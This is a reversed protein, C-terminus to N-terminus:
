RRFRLHWYALRLRVRDLLGPTLEAAGVIGLVKTAVPQRQLALGDAADDIRHDHQLFRPGLGERRQGEPRLGPGVTRTQDADGFARQAVPAADHLRAVEPRPRRRQITRIILQSIRDADIAPDPAHDRQRDAPAVFGLQLGRHALQLPAGAPLFDQQAAVGIRQLRRALAHAQDQLHHRDQEILGVELIGAASQHGLDRGLEPAVAHYEPQNALAHDFDLRDRVVDLEIRM